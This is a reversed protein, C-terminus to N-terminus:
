NFSGGCVEKVNQNRNKSQKIYLIKNNIIAARLCHKKEKQNRELKEEKQERNKKRSLELSYFICFFFM